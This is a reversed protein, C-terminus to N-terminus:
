GQVIHHVLLAECMQRLKDTLKYFGFWEVLVQRPKGWDAQIAFTLKYFSICIHWSKRWAFDSIRRSWISEGLSCYRTNKYRAFAVLRWVRSLKVRADNFLYAGRKAWTHSSNIGEFCWGIVWLTMFAAYWNDQSRYDWSSWTPGKKTCTGAKDIVTAAAYKDESYCKKAIVQYASLLWLNETAKDDM